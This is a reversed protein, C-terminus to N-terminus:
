PLGFCLINAGVTLAVYQKGNVTYTMPSAKNLGSTPFRWLTKGNRADAAVVYGSPDGYFLLGGATALIGSDQEEADTDSGSGFQQVEWATKGTDIDIARLYKRAPEAKLNETNRRRSSLRVTCADLAMVYYLRTLPSFAKANWNTGIRPCVPGSEPLLQPRGDAGIGSAWTVRAFPSALLVQGNTRDLVYFFGNKNTYLLLKRPQGQYHTNVLVLPATADWDHVDHPTVQYYWKLKGTEPEMALICNTYLNDGPRIGGNSDPYPNGTTWYLTDTEPDYSGTLWTAGGGVNKPLNGGWTKVEPDGDDPIARRRWVLQGNSAKYAAVFGRVGPWDGGSVGAIVMDKVILPAVTSGYNTLEGPPMVVDWVPKGTTRNLAILHANQTVKLVKDGLIAVGRNTGLAADGVNLEPPRPRRYDWIQQGTRADLAFAQHPGTAYMIGDAVIPTTEVGFHEMKSRFYATDPPLQKWLPVTFIWKLRLQNINSPNIQALESYRNGSLNGNYTLWDGPRPHLIRSFPVDGEGSPGSGMAATGPKVGALGSLFAVLDQLQEASAKAPPMQSEHSESLASIEDMPLLHFQGKLDQVVIEFNSRSRAFGSLTAGDRLRATVMQYGPAIHESPQLLSSRIEETTMEGGADSLDPGVASGKGYVMHCSACQGAGFFYEEGAARDGRVSNEAAPSNLSHVLAALADLEGAPLTNFAPMGGTPIGDHITRRLWSISRGQLRRNAALPPGYEGGRADVGHCGSCQTAYIDSGPTKSQSAPTQGRLMALSFAVAVLAPGAARRLRSKRIRKRM